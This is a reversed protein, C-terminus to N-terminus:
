YKICITKEAVNTWLQGNDDEFSVRIQINYNTVSGLHLIFGAHFRNDKLEENLIVNKYHDLEHNNSKIQTPDASFLSAKAGRYSDDHAIKMNFFFVFIFFRKDINTTAILYNTRFRFRVEDVNNTQKKSKKKIDQNTLVEVFVNKVTRLPFRNYTAKIQGHIQIPLLADPEHVPRDENENPSVLLQVLTQQLRQFFMRPIPIPITILTVALYQASALDQPSFFFARFHFKDIKSYNEISRRRSSKVKEDFKKSKTIQQSGFRHRTRCTSFKTRLFRRAM